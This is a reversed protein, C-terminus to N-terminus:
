AAKGTGGYGLELALFLFDKQAELAIKSKPYQTCVTGEASARTHVKYRRIVNTAMPWGQKAIYQATQALDTEGDRPDHANVVVTYPIGRPELVERITRATPDFALPEALMPVVVDDAQDLAAQLIAEDELSGPTDIFIHQRGKQKRLEALEAPDFIQQYDFPLRGRADIRSSWWISSGQPDTSVVLVPSVEVPRLQKTIAEFTVAALNMTVTTKGVGGKQNAIAHIRPLVM